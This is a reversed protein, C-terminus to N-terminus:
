GFLKKKISRGGYVEKYLTMLEDSSRSMEGDLEVVAQGNMAANRIAVDEYIVTKAAKLPAFGKVADQAQDAEDEGRAAGNIVVSAKLNKNLKSAETVLDAMTQLTWADLQSPRMPIIMQDAVLMAARMEISNSGGTDIVVDDYQGALKLAVEDVDEGIAAVCDITPVIGEQDRRMLWLKASQQPDTDLVVVRRGDLARMIALNVSLSTKGTGGKTTGVLIM